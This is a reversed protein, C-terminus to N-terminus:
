PWVTSTILNELVRHVAQQQLWGDFEVNSQAELVVGYKMTGYLCFVGGSLLREAIGAFMAEVAHWPM